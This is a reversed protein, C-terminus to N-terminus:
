KLFEQYAVILEEFLKEDYMRLLLEMQIKRGYSLEARGFVIKTLDKCQNVINVLDQSTPLHDKVDGFGIGYREHSLEKEWDHRYLIPSYLLNFFEAKRILSVPTESPICSDLLEMVVKATLFLKLPRDSVALADYIKRQEPLLRKTIFELYEGTLEKRRKESQAHQFLGGYIIRQVARIVQPRNQKVASKKMGHVVENLRPLQGNLLRNPSQSLISNRIKDDPCNSELADFHDDIWHAALTLFTVNRAVKRKRHHVRWDRIKQRLYRARARIFRPPLSVETGIWKLLTKALWGSRTEPLDDLWYPACLVIAQKIVDHEDHVVSLDRLPLGRHSLWEIWNTAGAKVEKDVGNLEPYKDGVVSAFIDPIGKLIDPTATSFWYEGLSLIVVGLAVLGLAFRYNADDHAPYVWQLLSPHFDHAWRLIAAHVSNVQVVVFAIVTFLGLTLACMITRYPQRLIIAIIPIAPLLPDLPSNGLGGTIAILASLLFTDALILAFTGRLLYTKRRATPLPTTHVSPNRYRGFRRLQDKWCYLGWLGLFLVGVGSVILVMHEKSIPWTPRKLIVLALSILLLGAVQTTIVMAALDISSQRDAPHDYFDSRPPPFTM